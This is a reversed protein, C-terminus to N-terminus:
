ITGRGLLFKRIWRGQGIHLLNHGVGLWHLVWANTKGLWLRELAAAPAAPGIAGQAVVRRLDEADSVTEWEAAPLSTAVERTRRGVAARYARLAAVDIQESLVAVEEPTMGTGVDRRSVRLREAWGDEDFVQPRGAVIVNIAVDECRAIHWFIWVLSNLGHPRARLQADDLNRFLAEELSRTEAEAVEVAHVMAHEKLFLELADM